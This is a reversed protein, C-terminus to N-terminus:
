TERFCCSITRRDIICYVTKLMDRDTFILALKNERWTSGAEDELRTNVLQVQYFFRVFQFNTSKEVLEAESRRDNYLTDKNINAYEISSINEYVEDARSADANHVKEGVYEATKRVTESDIEIGM